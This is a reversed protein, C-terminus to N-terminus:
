LETLVWELNKFHKKVYESVNQYENDRKERAEDIWKWAEEATDFDKVFEYDVCGQTYVYVGFKKM